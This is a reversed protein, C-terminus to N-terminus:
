LTQRRALRSFPGDGAVLEAYTGDEVLRGREIVFIRDAREVTSLRHAIVIRTTSLRELSQMVLAQSRNDLASTAEDFLLIRPRGILARAIMLRQRQGGSLTSSGEMLLTHMGMPMAEIDAAIGALHAAAWADDLTYPLGSTINQFISGTTIRCHQLVVGIQRRLSGMDLTTVSQGDYLIDGSEATEFGLLLRLLTSKGSGSPGVFAVFAGPEIRLSVDDLVLRMGEAYRFSVGSLEIRGALPAAESKDARAEPATGLIPRLREFLPVLDLSTALARAMSITAALLQGFAANIALFAGLGFSAAGAKGPMLLRSAAFFLVLLALIPYVEDFVEGAAAYRRAALFRRKQQAFLAAWVAFIRAEGAAVRLKAVGQLIQVLLGDEQGRLAVRAREQRLELLALAACVAGAVGVVVTSVIALLPSYLLIVALSMMAFVASLLSVLTNGALLRRMTQVSLVRNMLEGTGFGRFFNVPLGLMRHMLAPQMAMELRGELRLLAIAKTLEFVGAGLAAVVLGCIVALAQGAEARPVVSGFLYGTALPLLAAVGGGLAGMALITGLERGIGRGAFRALAAVGGIADPLPRYVMVAQPAIDGASAADVASSKGDAPDWLRYARRGEPLLAAPRRSEGHRALLAGNDSRWWAERLLVQRMGIGNARAVSRLATEAPGHFRPLRTVAIGHHAAVAALAALAPEGGLVPAPLQPVAGAVGALNQLGAAMSRRDIDARAAIRQRGQEEDRAIREGLGASVADHFRKLGSDGAEGALAEDTALCDVVSDEVARLWLGAAIPMADALVASGDGLCLRGRAPIAWVAGRPAHLGQGAALAISQGPEAAFEPGVAREGFAAAAIQCIWSDTSAARRAPPWAAIEEPSLWRIAADLRGIAIVAREPALPLPLILEGAAISCLPYRRGPEGDALAVAFLDVQGSEVLWGGTQGDLRLPAAASLKPSASRDDARAAGTRPPSTLRQVAM